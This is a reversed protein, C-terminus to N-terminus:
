RRREGEVAHPGEHDLKGTCRRMSGCACEVYEVCQDLLAGYESIPVLRHGLHLKFWAPEIRGSHTRLEIDSGGGILGDLAAIADGHKCILAMLQDEHNADQFTHTANCDLCHVNWDESM